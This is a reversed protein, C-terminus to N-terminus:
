VGQKACHATALEELLQPTVQELSAAVLAARSLDGTKTWATPVAICPIGAAAAAAVGKPSDELCVCEGPRVALARAAKHFVEPDPKARRVDEGALVLCFFRQLNLHRLVVEASSRGAGTALVCPTGRAALAALLTIAGPLPVGREALYRAFLEQKRAFIAPWEEPMGGAQAYLERISGGGLTVQQRYQEPHLPLGVEGFATVYAAAHIPESDVLLGDM